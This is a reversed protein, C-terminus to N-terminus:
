LRQFDINYLCPFSVDPAPWNAVQSAESIKLPQQETFPPAPMTHAYYQFPGHDDEYLLGLTAGEPFRRPAMHHADPHASTYCGPLLQSHRDFPATQASADMPSSNSDLWPGSFNSASSSSTSYPDLQWEAPFSVDSPPTLLAPSMSSSSSSGDLMDLSQADFPTAPSPALSGHHPPTPYAHGGFGFHAHPSALAQAYPAPSCCYQDPKWLEPLAPVLPPHGGMTPIPPDRIVAINPEGGGRSRRSQGKRGRPNQSSTPKKRARATPTIEPMRLGLAHLRAAYEQDRKTKPLKSM